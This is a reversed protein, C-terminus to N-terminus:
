EELTEFRGDWMLAEAWASNLITPSRRGLENMRDGVGRALGDGWAFSPSHCSGCSQMNSRSLRPDFYLTRGLRAKAESFPNDEPFPISSPRQYEAMMAAVEPLSETPPTGAGAFSTEGTTFLAATAAALVLVAAVGLSYRHM